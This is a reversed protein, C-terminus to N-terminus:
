GETLADYAEAVAARENRSVPRDVGAADAAADMDHHRIADSDPFGREALVAAIASVEASLLRSM